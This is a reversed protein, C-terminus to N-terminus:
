KLFIDPHELYAKFLLAVTDSTEITGKKIMRIAESPHVSVLEIQETSDLKQVSNIVAERVLFGYTIQNTKTPNNAIRGLPILRDETVKIGTEEELEALASAEISKGRQQMGGPLELFINRLGHKYQKVLIFNGEPTLPLVMVVNGIPSVFYDDIIAGDPLQVKHKIVPFWRSPSVDTEELIQWSM